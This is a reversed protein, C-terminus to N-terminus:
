ENCLAVRTTDCQWVNTFPMNLGVFDFGRRSPLHAGDSSNVENIGLHWKGIMGTVYGAAKMMEGM